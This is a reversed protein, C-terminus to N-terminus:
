LKIKTWKGSRFRLYSLVFRVFQDSATGLWAGMLGMGFPYCLLWGMFPRIFTVCIFSAVATFRVDGAGRLCGIFVVQGIQLFTIVTMIRTIMIGYELIAPDDSFFNFINRGFTIFIFSLVASCLIGIRQCCSGYIKALDERREGLSRGALAVAAVMLGDGFSFSIGMLNMGIQHAALATTGLKTVSLTFLVFGVRLCIQEILTGSGVGALAWLSQRDFKFKLLRYSVFSKRRFLSLISVGCGVATGIVTAVAAGLVGLKPFGFNGGILLYNFVVNVANATLNSLMAVRTKGAGRQSANIILSVTNFLICGMIVQFYLVADNHTDPESGMLGIIEDAFFVCAASVVITILVGIALAQSLIGNASKQNGEGLRRATLASVATSLSMFVALGLFKPQTTLGVAAIASSGIASVMLTDAFGTLSILFSELMSPWAISITKIIIQRQTPIEGLAGTSRTLQRIPIVQM